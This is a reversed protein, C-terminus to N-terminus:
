VDIVPGDPRIKGEDREGSWARALERVLTLTAFPLVDIGPILDVGAFGLAYTARGTLGLLFSAEVLFSVAMGIPGLALEDLADFVDILIAVPLLALLGIPVRGARLAAVRAIFAALQAVGPIRSVFSGDFSRRDRPM